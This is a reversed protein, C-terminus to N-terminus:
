VEEDLVSLYKGYQMEIQRFGIATTELIVEATRKQENTVDDPISIMMYGDEITHCDEMGALEGLAGAATYATVSVAACVIDSGCMSYGAHGEIVIKRIFNSKDRAIRIQIM